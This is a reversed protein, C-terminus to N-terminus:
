VNRNVLDMIIRSHESWLASRQDHEDTEYSIQTLYPHDATSEEVKKNELDKGTITTKGNSLSIKMLSLTRDDPIIGNQNNSTQELKQRRINSNILRDMVDADLGSLDDPNPVTVDITIKTKKPIKLIRDLGETSKEIEVDVAGFIKNISSNGFIADLADKASRPTLAATDFLLRHNQPLFLFCIRRLNPKLDEPIPLPQDEELEVPNGSTINLWPKSPDFSIFRYFEGYMGDVPNVDNVSRLWGIIAYDNGRIKGILKQQKAIEFLEAYKESSHPHIKINLGGVRFKKVRPM